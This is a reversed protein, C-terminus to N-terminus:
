GSIRAVIAVDMGEARAARAMEIKEERRGKEEGKREGERLGEERGM